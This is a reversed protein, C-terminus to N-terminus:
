NCKRHHKPTKEFQDEYQKTQKECRTEEEEKQMLRNIRRDLSNSLYSVQKKKNGKKRITRGFHSKGKGMEISIFKAHEYRGLLFYHNRM